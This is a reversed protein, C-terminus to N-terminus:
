IFLYFMKYMLAVNATNIMSKLIYINIIITVNM